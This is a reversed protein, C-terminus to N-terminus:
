LDGFQALIINIDEVCVIENGILLNLWEIDIGSLEKWITPDMVLLLSELTGVEYTYAAIPLFGLITKINEIAKSLDDKEIKESPNREQSEYTKGNIGNNSIELEKKSPQNKWEKDSFAEVLGKSIKDTDIGVSRQIQYFSYETERVRQIFDEINLQRLSAGEGSIYIPHCDLYERLYSSADTNGERRANRLAQEFGMKLARQPDFDFIFAENKEIGKPLSTPRFIFQLYKELSKTDSMLFASDWMPETSGEVFRACTLTITKIGESEKQSIIANVEEMDTIENDTAPIAYFGPIENIIKTLAKISGVGPCLAITHRISSKILYPSYKSKVGNQGLLNLIWTKVYGEHIFKGERDVGLFKGLKFGEDDSFRPDNLISPDMYPVYTRLSVAKILGDRKDRQQDIYDYFFCNGKTFKGSAINKFPTGSCWVRFPISNLSPSIEKTFKDTETGTHAEDIMVSHFQTQNVLSKIWERNNQNDWLQKSIAVVDIKDESPVWDKKDKLSVFNMGQFWSHSEIDRKLSSFVKPRNTFVLINGNYPVYDLCDALYTFNKGFRMVAGLLFDRSGSSRATGMKERAALQCSRLGYNDLDKLTGYIEESFFEKVESLLISYGENSSGNKTKRYKNKSHFKQEIAFASGVREIDSASLKKSYVIVQAETTPGSYGRITDQPTQGGVANTGYQGVKLISIKGSRVNELQSENCWVYIGQGRERFSESLPDLITSIIDGGRKNQILTSIKIDLSTIM